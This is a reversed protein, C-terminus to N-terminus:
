RKDLKLRNTVSFTGEVNALAYALRREVENNVQGTLTVRGREVVIHIPPNAMSAYHWFASHNYIARAIRTRLNSDHPSVPLVVIDNRVEELGDVRSVRAGIDTRKLPATVWGTLRAVGDNVEISVDDFITFQAYGRVAEAAREALVRDRSPLQAAAPAASVLAIALALLASRM